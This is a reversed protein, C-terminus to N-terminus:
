SPTIYLCIVRSLRIFASLLFDTNVQRMQTGTIVIQDAYLGMTSSKEPLIQLPEFFFRVNTSFKKFLPM